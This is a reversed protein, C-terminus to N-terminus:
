DTKISNLKDQLFSIVALKDSIILKVPLTIVQDKFSEPIREYDKETTILRAEHKAAQELLTQIDKESYPHHDPFPIFDVINLYQKLLTQRFKEPYGLGAFGIYKLRTDPTTIPSIKANFIPTDSPIKSAIDHLDDGILIIADCRKIAQSLPERLPGAPLTRENGFGMQGDVVLFSIDKKLANNQFGDDMIILKAGSQVALNAGDNRNPSIITKCHKALIRPEDGTCKAEESLSIVRCADNEAGYGRTLFYTNPMALIDQLAIATPTKGSGGAIVNGICIVPINVAQPKTRLRDLKQLLTYIFSVPTLLTSLSSSKDRETPYWFDPTKLPM